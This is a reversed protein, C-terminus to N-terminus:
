MVTVEIWKSITCQVFLCQIEVNGTREGMDTLSNGRSRGILGLKFLGCYVGDGGEGGEGVTCRGLM